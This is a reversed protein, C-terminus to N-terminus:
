LHNSHSQPPDQMPHSGINLINRVDICKPPSYFFNGFSFQEIDYRQLTDNFM